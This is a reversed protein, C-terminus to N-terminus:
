GERHPSAMSEILQRIIEEQYPTLKDVCVFRRTDLGLLYDTKCDFIAAMQCLVDVSPLQQDSEYGSITSQKVFLRDALQQQSLRRKKRQQKIREGLSKACNAM